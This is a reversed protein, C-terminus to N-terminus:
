KQTAGKPEFVNNGIPAEHPLSVEMKCCHSHDLEKADTCLFQDSSTSPKSIREADGAFFIEM